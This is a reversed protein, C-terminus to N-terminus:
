LLEAAEACGRERCKEFYLPGDPHAQEHLLQFARDYDPLEAAPVLGAKALDISVAAAPVKHQGDCGDAKGRSHTLGAEQLDIIVETEYLDDSM